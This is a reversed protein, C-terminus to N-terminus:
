RVPSITEDLSQVSTLIAGALRKMEFRYFPAVARTCYHRTSLWLLM